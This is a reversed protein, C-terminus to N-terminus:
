VVSKRDEPEIDLYFGGTIREAFVSSAGPVNRVVTEIQRALTQRRVEEMAARKAAESKRKWEPEEAAKKQAEAAAREKEAQKEAHETAQRRVEDGQRMEALQKWEARSATYAFALVFSLLGILPHLATTSRHSM